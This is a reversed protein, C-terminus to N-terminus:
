PTVENPTKTPDVTRAGERVASALKATTGTVSHHIVAVQVSASM